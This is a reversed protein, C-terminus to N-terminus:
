EKKNGNLWESYTVGNYKDPMSCYLPLLFIHKIINWIFKIIKWIINLFNKM